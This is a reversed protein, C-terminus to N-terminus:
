PHIPPFFTRAGLCLAAFAAFEGDDVFTWSLESMADLFQQKSVIGAASFHGDFSAIWQARLETSSSHGRLFQCAAMSDFRGVLDQTTIMGNVKKDLAGFIRGCIEARQGSNFCRQVSSLVGQISFQGNSFSSIINQLQSLSVNRIGVAVLGIQMTSADILGYSSRSAELLARLFNHGSDLGRALLQKRLQIQLDMAGDPMLKFDSQMFTPSPRSYSLLLCEGGAAAQLAALFSAYSIKLNSSCGYTEVVYEQALAIRDQLVTVNAATTNLVQLFESTRIFGCAALDMQCFAYTLPELLQADIIARLVVPMARQPFLQPNARVHRMTFADAELIEFLRGAVSLVNGSYVDSPKIHQNRETMSPIRSRAFVCGGFGGASKAEYIAITEDATYVEVFFERNSEEAGSGHDICEQKAVLCFGVGKEKVWCYPRFSEPRVSATKSSLRARFRLIVAESKQQM